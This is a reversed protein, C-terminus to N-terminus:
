NKELESINLSALGKRCSFFLPKLVNLSKILDSLQQTGM